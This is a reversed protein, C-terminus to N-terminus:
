RPGKNLDGYIAGKIFPAKFCTVGAMTKRKVLPIVFLSSEREDYVEWDSALKEWFNTALDKKQENSDVLGKLITILTQIKNQLILASSKNWIVVIIVLTIGM